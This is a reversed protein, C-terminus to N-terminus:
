QVLTCHVVLIRIQLRLQKIATLTFNASNVRAIKPSFIQITPIRVLLLIIVFRILIHRRNKGGM